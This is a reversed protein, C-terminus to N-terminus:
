TWQNGNNISELFDRWIKDCMEKVARDSMLQIIDWM